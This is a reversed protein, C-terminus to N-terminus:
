CGCGPKNKDQNGPNQGSHHRAGSQGPNNGGDNMRTTADNMEDANRNASPDNGDETRQGKSQQGRQGGMDDPGHRTRGQGQATSGPQGASGSQGPNDREFQSRDANQPRGSATDNQRPDQQKGQKNADDQKPTTKGTQPNFTTM